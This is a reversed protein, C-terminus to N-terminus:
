SRRRKERLARAKEVRDKSVFLQRPRQIGDLDPYSQPRGKREMALPYSAMEWSRLSAAHDTRIITWLRGSFQTNDLLWNVRTRLLEPGIGKLTAPRESDLWVATHPGVRLLRGPLRLVHFTTVGYIQASAQTEGLEVALAIFRRNVRMSQQRAEVTRVATVPDGYNEWLSPFDVALRSNAPKKVISSLQRGLESANCVTFPRLRFHITV